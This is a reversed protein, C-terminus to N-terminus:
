KLLIVDLLLAFARLRISHLAFAVLEQPTLVLRGRGLLKHKATASRATRRLAAATAPLGRPSDRSQRVKVLTETGSCEAIKATSLILAVATLPYRRALALDTSM